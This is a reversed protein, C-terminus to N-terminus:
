FVNWLPNQHAARGPFWQAKNSIEQVRPWCQLSALLLFTLFLCLAWNKPWHMQFSKGHFTFAHIFYWSCSHLLHIFEDGANTGLSKWEVIHTDKELNITTWNPTFFDVVAQCIFRPGSWRAILSARWQVQWKPDMVAHLYVCELQTLVFIIERFGIPIRPFSCFQVWCVPLFSPPWAALAM